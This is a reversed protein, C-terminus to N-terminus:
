GHSQADAAPMGCESPDVETYTADVSGFEVAHGNTLADLASQAVNFLGIAKDIALVNVSTGNWSLSYCKGCNVSNWGEVTPSGGVFPTPLSGINTYGKTKLGNEGNSCSVTDLDRGPDDYANDYTVKIPEENQQQTTAQPNLEAASLTLTSALLLLSNLLIKM